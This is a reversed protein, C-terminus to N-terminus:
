EAVSWEILNIQSESDLLTDIHVRNIISAVWSCEAAFLIKKVEKVSQSHLKMFEVTIIESFIVAINFFKKMLMFNVAKLKTWIM